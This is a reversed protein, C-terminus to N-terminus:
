AAEGLSLLSDIPINAKAAIRVALALSPTRQGNVLRSILSQQVGVRAAFDAQTTNTQDLFDALSKYKTGM